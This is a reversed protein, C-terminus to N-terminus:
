SARFIKFVQKPIPKSVPNGTRWNLFEAIVQLGRLTMRITLEHFDYKVKEESKPAGVVCSYDSM